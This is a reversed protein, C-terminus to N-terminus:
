IQLPHEEGSSRKKLLCRYTHGPPLDTKAGEAHSPWAFCFRYSYGRGRNQKLESRALNCIVESRRIKQIQPSLPGPSCLSCFRPRPYEYRQKTTKPRPSALTQQTCSSLSVDGIFRSAQDMEQIRVEILVVRKLLHQFHEAHQSALACRRPCVFSRWIVAVVVHTAINNRTVQTMGHGTSNLNLDPHFVDLTQKITRVKNKIQQTKVTLFGTM